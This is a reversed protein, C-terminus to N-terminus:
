EPMVKCWTIKPKKKCYNPYVLDNSKPPELAKYRGGSFATCDRALGAEIVEGGIDKGNLYCIGVYRKGSCTGDLECRIQQGECIQRVFTTAELGGPEKKHANFEPAAVGQLRVEVSGAFVTDGDVVRCVGLVESQSFAPLSGLSALFLIIRLTYM